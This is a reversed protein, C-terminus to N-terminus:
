QLNGNFGWAVIGSISISKVQYEKTQRQVIKHVSQQVSNADANAKADESAQTVMDSRLDMLAKSLSQFLCSSM